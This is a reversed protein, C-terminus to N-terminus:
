RKDERKRSKTDLYTETDKLLINSSKFIYTDLYISIWGSWTQQKVPSKLKSMKEHINGMIEKIIPNVLLM